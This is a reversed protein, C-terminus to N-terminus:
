WCYSYKYYNRRNFFLRDTVFYTTRCSIDSVIILKNLYKGHEAYYNCNGTSPTVATNNTFVLQVNGLLLVM